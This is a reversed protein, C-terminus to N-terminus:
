ISTYIIQKINTKSRLDIMRNGLLDITVLVKAGSDNFQHELERDSYLPNNMVAIGGIRLIAYCAAVCPILNPLLIAVSDGKNIGFGHLCSAFRNVMDNLERYTIKYGQFSLAMKDPFKGATRELIEPLCIEEYEIKEPVGKEYSTLWPKDEYKIEAAM